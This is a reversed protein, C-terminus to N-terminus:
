VCSFESMDYVFTAETGDVPNVLHAIRLPEDDLVCLNLNHKDTDTILGRNGFVIGYDRVSTSAAPRGGLSSVGHPFAIARRRRFFYANGRRELGFLPLLVKDQFLRLPLNAPVRLERFWRPSAVNKLHVTVVYSHLMHSYAGFDDRITERLGNENLLNEITRMKKLEDV